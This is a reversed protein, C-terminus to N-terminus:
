RRDPREVSDGPDGGHEPDQVAAEAALERCVRIVERYVRVVDDGAYAARELMSRERDPDHVERGAFRKAFNVALVLSVRRRLLALLTADVEDIQARLHGILAEAERNM